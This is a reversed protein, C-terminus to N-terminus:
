DKIKHIKRFIGFKKIFRKIIILMENVERTINQQLSRKM